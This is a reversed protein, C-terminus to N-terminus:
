LRTKLAKLPFPPFPFLTIRSVNGMIGQAKRIKAHATALKSALQGETRGWWHSAAMNISGTRKSDESNATDLNVADPEVVGPFPALHAASVCSNPTESSPTM